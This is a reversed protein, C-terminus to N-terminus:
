AHNRFQNIFADNCTYGVIKSMIQRLLRCLDCKFVQLFTRMFGMEQKPISTGLTLVYETKMQHPMEARIGSQMSDKVRFLSVGSDFEGPSRQLTMQISSAPLLSDAAGGSILCGSLTQWILHQKKSEIATWDDDQHLFHHGYIQYRRFEHRHLQALQRMDGKQPSFRVYPM